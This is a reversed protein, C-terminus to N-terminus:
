LQEGRRQAKPAEEGAAESTPSRPSRPGRDRLPQSALLPSAMSRMGLRRRLQNLLAKEPEIAAGEEEIFRLPRKRKQLEADKGHRALFERHKEDFAFYNSDRCRLLYSRAAKAADRAERPLKKIKEDASRPAWAFCIMQTHVRYGHAPREPLGVDIDLPRLAEVIEQSLGRLPEPVDNLCPVYDGARCASCKKCTPKALKKLDVPDLRRPQMSGCGECMQWSGQKCWAELARGAATSAAPFGVDNPRLDALPGCRAVVEELEKKEQAARGHKGKHEPCLVKRRVFQREQRLKNDYDEREDDSLPPQVLKRRELYRQREEAPAQLNAQRQYRLAAEAGKFDQLREAAAAALRPDLKGLKKLHAAIGRLRQAEKRSLATSSCFPCHTEGREPQIRAPQWADTTSVVCSSGGRGPCTEKKSGRRSAPRKCPAAAAEPESSAAESSLRRRKAPGPGEAAALAAFNEAGSDADLAGGSSGAADAPSAELQEPDPDTSAAEAIGLFDGVDLEAAARESRMEEDADNVGSSEAGSLAAAAEAAFAGFEAEFHNEYAERPLRSLALRQSARPMARLLQKLRALGGASECTQELSDPDCWSCRARGQKPQCPRGGRAFCCAASSDVLGSCLRVM